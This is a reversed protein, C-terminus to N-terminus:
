FFDVRFDFGIVFNFRRTHYSYSSKWTERNRNRTKKAAKEKGKTKWALADDADEDASPPSSPVFDFLDALAIPRLSSTSVDFEIPSRPVSAFCSWFHM